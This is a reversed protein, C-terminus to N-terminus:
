FAMYQDTVTPVGDKMEWALGEAGQTIIRSGEESACWDLFEIAKEPHECKSTIAFENSGFVGEWYVSTSVVDDLFNMPMYGSDEIGIAALQEEKNM